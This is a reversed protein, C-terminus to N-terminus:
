TPSNGNGGDFAFILGAIVAAIAFIVLFVEEGELNNEETVPQSFRVEAPRTEAQAATTGLLMASALVPALIKKM